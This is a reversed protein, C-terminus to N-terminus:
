PCSVRAPSRCPILVTSTPGAWKLFLRLTLSTPPARARPLLIGQLTSHLAVGVRKVRTPRDMLALLDPKKVEEELIVLYKIPKVQNETIKM